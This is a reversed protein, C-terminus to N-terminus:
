PEEWHLVTFREVQVDPQWRWWSPLGAKRKLHFLFQEPQPLQEWVQPIFLGSHVGHTLVVGDIGPRLQSLLDGETEVALRELRSLVSLDLRLDPLEAESVPLFRPDQFAAACAAHRVAEHLELRAQLQGVCGRLDGDARAYLSVFVARRERLWPAPPLERPAGGFREAIAGRALVLLLAGDVGAPAAGDASM